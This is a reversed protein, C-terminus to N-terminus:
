HNLITFPADSEDNYCVVSSPCQTIDAYDIHIKYLGSNISYPIRWIYSNISNDPSLVNNSIIQYNGSTYDRLLIRVLNNVGKVSNKNTWKIEYTKGVEWVEGGNPSIVTISPATTSKVISFPADSKDEVTGGESKYGLIYIKFINKGFDNNSIVTNSPLWDYSGRLANMTPLDRVIWTYFADNRYLAISVKTLNPPANWTIKYYSNFDITEGGNPSLVTLSIDSPLLEVYDNANGEIPKKSICIISVRNPYPYEDTALLNM